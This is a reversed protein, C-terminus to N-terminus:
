EAERDVRKLTSRQSHGSWKVNRHQLQLHRQLLQQLHILGIPLEVSSIDPLLNM